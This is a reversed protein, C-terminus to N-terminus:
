GQRTERSKVSRSDRCRAVNKVNLSNKQKMHEQLGPEAPPTVSTTVLQNPYACYKDFNVFSVYYAVVKMGFQFSIGACAYQFPAIKSSVYSLLCRHTADDSFFFACTIILGICLM